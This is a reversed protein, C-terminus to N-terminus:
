SCYPDLQTATLVNKHPNGNESFYILSHSVIFSLESNM